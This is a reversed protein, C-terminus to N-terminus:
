SRWPVQQLRLPPQKAGEAIDPDGQRWRLMPTASPSLNALGNVINGDAVGGAMVLFGDNVEIADIGFTGEALANGGRSGPPLEVPIPAKDTTCDMALACLVNDPTVCAGTPRLLM